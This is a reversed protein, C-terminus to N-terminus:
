QWERKCLSKSFCRFPINVDAEIKWQLRQQTPGNTTTGRLQVITTFVLIIGFKITYTKPRIFGQVVGWSGVEILFLSCFLLNVFFV